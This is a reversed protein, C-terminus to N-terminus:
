PAVRWPSLSIMTRVPSDTSMVFHALVRLFQAQPQGLCLRKFNIELHFALAVDELKEAPLLLRLLAMAQRTAVFRIDDVQRSAFDIVDRGPGFAAKRKAILVPGDPQHFNGFAANMFCSEEAALLAYDVRM